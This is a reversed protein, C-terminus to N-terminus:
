IVDSACRFGTGATAFNLGVTINQTFIGGDEGSGYFGGRMIGKVGFRDVSAYDSGFELSPKPSTELVLGSQNVMIVYGSDPLAVGQVVGDTVTDAVWEWVNGVLDNVGFANVCKAQGSERLVGGKLCSEVDAVGLALQHWEANTLLRKGSRACLQSATSYSVFRWPLVGNVSVAQCRPSGLNATSEVESTTNPYLCGPGPSAEYSDVCIAHSGFGVLTSGEKCVSESNSLGLSAALQNDLGNFVDSAQISLATIFCAVLAIGSSKLFQYKRKLM